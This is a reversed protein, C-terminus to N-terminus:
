ITTARIEQRQIKAREKYAEKHKQYYARRDRHKKPALCKEGDHCKNVFPCQMCEGLAPLYDSNASLAYENYNLM